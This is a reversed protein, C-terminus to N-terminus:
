KASFMEDCLLKVVHTWTFREGAFRPGSLRAQEVFAENEVLNCMLEILHDRSPELYTGSDGQPLQFSKKQSDISLAFDSNTFDDTSGGKTCIVPLGSAIAELVPMNFGEAYYPSVYADCCQHLRALAYFDLTGGYYIMREQVIRTEVETLGQSQSTLWNESPYLSDLGKLVLRVHPHRQAVVSFAKLLLHLGKNSTMSGVSLFHFGEFGLKSRLVSRESAALPKFLRTDVGHPIVKVREPDAGSQIFGRRSWHSPTLLTASGSELAQRLPQHRRVHDSPVHGFESTGFVYTKKASSDSYDYPFTMRLIVDPQTDAPLTTPIAEIRNEYEAPFLGKHQSWSPTLYPMDTHFLRLSREKLLELCQFQNVIAYSHPIFRWGEVMLTHTARITTTM